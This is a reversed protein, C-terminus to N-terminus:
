YDSNNKKQIEEIDSMSVKIPMLLLLLFILVSFLVLLLIQTQITEISFFSYRGAIFGVCYFLLLVFLCLSLTLLFPSRNRKRKQFVKTIDHHQLIQILLIVTPLLLLLVYAYVYLWNNDALFPLRTITILYFFSLGIFSALVTDRYIGLSILAMPIIICLISFSDSPLLMTLLITLYLPISFQIISKTKM